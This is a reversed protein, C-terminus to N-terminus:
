VGALVARAKALSEAAFARAELGTLSSGPNRRFYLCETRMNNGEVDGYTATFDKAWEIEQQREYDAAQAARKIAAAKKRTVKTACETGYYVVEEVNGDADLADLVITKRLDSRGCNMCQAYDSTGKVRYQAAMEIEWDNDSIYVVIPSALISTLM